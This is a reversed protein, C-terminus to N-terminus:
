EKTLIVQIIDKLVIICYIDKEYLEYRIQMYKDDHQKCIFKKDFTYFYVEHFNPILTNVLYYLKFKQKKM